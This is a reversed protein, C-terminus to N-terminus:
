PSAALTITWALDAGGPQDTTAVLGGVPGPPQVAGGDGVAATVHGGGSGTVGARLTQSVPPTWTTATSSRAAWYSVVWAGSAGLWSLPTAYSTTTATAANPVATLVPGAGSTGAYTLLDLTGKTATTGYTVTVASGADSPGAVREWVTSYMTSGQEHGVNVWGAPAVQPAAVASTAILILGDGGATSPPVTVTETTANASTHSEGLFAIPATSPGPYVVQTSPPSSEGLANTVTLVLSYSGAATYPYTITPTTTSVESSGDGFSWSYVAVSSAPATSSTADASCTLQSCWVTFSATPPPAVTVQEVLPPSTGGFANTVTLTVSEVGGTTYTHGTTPTTTVVSTGDGFNWAYSTTVSGPSTSGSADFTCSLGTCSPAFSAVPAAAVSVQQTPSTAVQGQANTVTLTVPYTGSAAFTHVPTVGTGAPTGDGFSWVYSTISSGPDTSATADFSCTYGVCSESFTATPPSPPAVFMGNSKWNPGGTSPGSVIQDTSSQPDGGNWPVAHLNGSSDAYYLTTGALFMGAIASFNVQGSGSPVDFACPELNNTASGATWVCRDAGVLGDDPTFGRYRLGAKGAMSYYLRGQDYFMGTVSAVDGVSSGNTDFTPLTGVYNYGGNGGAPIPQWLPDDYSGVAPDLTQRAGLTAGTFDREYLRGDSYGYFLKSGILFVGRVQSWDLGSPDSVKVPASAASGQLYTYALGGPDASSNALYVDGPLPADGVTSPLTEGGLPFFALLGRYYQPAVVSAPPPPTQPGPGWYGQDSGTYLGQPTLLLSYTGNGRPTRGPNWAYPVGSAPDLAAVGARPVAGPGPSDHGNSNNMWREHGGVYVANAGVQVSYLTDRGTWDVWTPQVNSGTASLEWRSASDCLGKTGDSNTGEGGSAVVVFYSGDPSVSLGRVYSDESNSYCAAGFEQTAWAPDVTAQTPGLDVMLVQDRVYQAGTADGVDKFNGDVILRSGDPTVGMSQVGVSGLACTTCGAYWNHHVTGLQVGMYSELSGTVPDLSALGQHSQWTTSGAPKAHTFSGGVLLYGDAAVVSSVPGDLGPSFSTIRQGNTTDLLVLYKATTGNVTTFTGGVYVSPDGNVIPGPLLADVQGYRSGGSLAPEFSTNITGTAQDFALINSVTVADAANLDGPPLAKTFEGAMIIQSGVQTIAYVEYHNGSADSGPLVNPTTSAPPDATVLAGAGADARAVTPAVGALLGSLGVLCVAVAIRGPRRRVNRM